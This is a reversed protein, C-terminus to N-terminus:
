RKGPRAPVPGPESRHHGGPAPKAGPEPVPGDSLDLGRNYRDADGGARCEEGTRQAVEDVYKRVEEDTARKRAEADRAQEQAARERTQAIEVDLNKASQISAAIRAECRARESHIGWWRGIILACALLIAVKVPWPLAKWIGFVSGLLRKAVALVIAPTM